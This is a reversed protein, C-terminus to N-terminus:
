EQGQMETIYIFSTSVTDLLQSDLLRPFVLCSPCYYTDQSKTHNAQFWVRTTYYMIDM